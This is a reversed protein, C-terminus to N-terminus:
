ESVEVAEPRHRVIEGEVLYVVDEAINTAHDAIREVHRTVSFLSLGAEVMEPSQQMLRVLEDIIERNYRDVEDDLRIVRRALRADLHVFADLSQRVMSTALDTMRQLDNPIPILPLRHLAVAREAIDVALDAMRELDTNIKLVTAIRRLDIAVPQHLALIKLCEEEIHNEQEDIQADGVIVQRALDAERRELSRIAKYLTEEVQSALSVIDRQLNDLDRELHKSM